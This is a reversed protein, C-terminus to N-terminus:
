QKNSGLKKIMLHIQKPPYDFYRYIVPCLWGENGNSEYVAGGSREEKFDVHLTAGSFNQDSFIVYFSGQIHPYMAKKWELLITDAGEFLEEDFIEKEVDDFLLFEGRQYVEICHKM